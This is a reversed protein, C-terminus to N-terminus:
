IYSNSGSTIEVDEGIVQTGRQITYTPTTTKTEEKVEPKGPIIYETEYTKTTYEISSIYVESDMLKEYKFYVIVTSVFIIFTITVILFSWKKYWKKKM